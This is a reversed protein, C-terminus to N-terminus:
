VWIHSSHNRVRKIVDESMNGPCLVLLIQDSCRIKFYVLYTRFVIDCFLTIYMYTGTCTIIMQCTETMIFANTNEPWKHPQKKTHTNQKPLQIKPLLAGRIYSQETGRELSKALCRFSAMWFTHKGKFNYFILHIKRTNRGFSPPVGKQSFGQGEGVGLHVARM